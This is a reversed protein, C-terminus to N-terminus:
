HSYKKEFVELKKKLLEIEKDKESLQTKLSASPDDLYQIAENLPIWRYDKNESPILPYQSRM